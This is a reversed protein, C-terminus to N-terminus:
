LKKKITYGGIAVTVAASITAVVLAPILNPTTTTETEGGTDNYDLGRFYGDYRTMEIFEGRIYESINFPGSTVMPEAPPNPNWTNWNDVGIEQFIHKPLIPKYAIQHLNWISETSFEVVVLYPTPAYAAAIGAFDPSDAAGQINRRYNLTFAVDDATLPTGDTWTANQVIEFTIRSHGDPVNPNDKHTHVTYGECLWNLDNNNPDLKVLSDYLLNLIEWDSVSGALMMNLTDINMIGCRITGGYPGGLSEKLKVNFYTWWNNSQIDIFGEFRDTRYANVFWNQYCIIMPCEYILVKQLEEVPEQVEEFTRAHTLAYSWYDVTTNRLNFLNRFPVDAYESLFEYGMWDLDYNSFTLDFFVIDYDGHYYLRHLYEYFDAPVSVANIGLARLADATLSGVQLATDITYCEITVQFSSGDPAERFGNSDIDHFGADDLLSLGIEVNSEYYTYPLQGEISWANQSPVISDLPQSLGEFVDDSIAEKDLAFALARRFATINLPYKECNVFLAGYGNKLAYSLEINDAKDAVEILSLPVEDFTMDIENDLLGLLQQQEENMIQFEINEIYPGSM